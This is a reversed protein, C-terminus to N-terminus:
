HHGERTKSGSREAVAKSNEAAGPVAPKTRETKTQGDVYGALGAAGEKAGVEAGGESLIRQLIAPACAASSVMARMGQAFVEAGAAPAGTAQTQV